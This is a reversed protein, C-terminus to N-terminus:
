IDLIENTYSFSQEDYYELRNKEWHLYTWNKYTKRGDTYLLNDVCDWITVCEKTEHKRLGRGIAQLVKIQSKYSSYLVIHHLKKVNSGTAFTGYSAVLIAGDDKELSRRIEERVEGDTKGYIEYVKKGPYEKEIYNKVHLLHEIKTVLILINEKEKAQEIIYNLTKNRGKYANIDDVEAQYNVRALRMHQPYNLILNKIKIQSIVGKEILEKSMIKHIVPGLYGIINNLDADNKPLTGTLGIRFSSNICKSAIDQICKGKMTHAEDLILADYREFFSQERKYVSQWTTLLINKQLDIEKGGYNLCVHNIANQWGYDNKFDSFLQEVLSINPVIILIKKQKAILYRIICYIILSKGSSTALNLIGRHNKIAHSVAEQQYDRPFINKEPPFLMDFFNTLFEDSVNDKFSKQDFDFGCDYKFKDCFELFKGLLGIPFRCFKDLFCIKGDWLGAKFKPSYKYDEAYFSFYAKLEMYQERNLDAKFYVENDKTLRILDEYMTKEM